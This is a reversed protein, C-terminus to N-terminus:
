NGVAVSRAANGVTSQMRADAAQQKAMVVAQGLALGGDGPPVLRQTFVTFGDAQLARRGVGLLYRNQWSGGSLVVQKLGTQARVKLAAERVMAIVTDHFRRAVRSPETCGIDALIAEFLPGPDIEAKRFFYPYPELRLHFDQPQSAAPYWPVLAELCVPAEGEFTNEQCVGIIASVADFLRGCSSALSINFGSALLREVLYLEQRGAFLRRAAARGSEGLFTELYALATIWPFRVAREGGPLPVPALHYVREFDLYSGCLVEFGWLQGDRGYGTGDLIIGIAEGGVRNEALCSAFHAHHHQVGPHREAGFDAALQAALKSSRYNPHLDAGVVAPRVGLLACYSKVGQVLNEMGELSGVDGLHQSLYARDDILVCFTNKNDGGLALVPVASAHPVPVPRPVYGRSRRFFLTEGAVVTVVSDDCRNAIDRNHWLFYDAIHGLEAVAERNETVLPLESKNGSTMVLVPPGEQLLLLHLPTYPLMVGLSAQGPALGEPLRCDPRKALVVIPGPPSLLLQEEVETVVCHRRVTKLDRCMVALAKTPRRKRSRLEQVAQANTADCALHFGGLGKVALIKGECLLEAALTLSRDGVAQRRGVRNVLELQPGCAPCAVPQAHFRRDAPDGYERACEPCLSFDKMTTFRRDYPLAQLVTFRPGCNTCNTFPYRFHRDTPNLVERQCEPCIASDPPILASGVAGGQSSEIVFSCSGRPPLITTYIRSVRALAPPREGLARVFGAVAAPVGEVEIIVGQGDNRVSGALGFEHALRYVFPRFGVGQVTGTVMVLQRVRDAAM